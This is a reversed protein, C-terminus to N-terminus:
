AARPPHERRDRVLFREPGNGARGGADMWARFGVPDRAEMEDLYAQRLSVLTGAEVPWSADRLAATSFHWAACLEADDLAAVWTRRPEGPQESSPPPLGVSRHRLVMIALACVGALVPLAVVLAPAWVLLAVCTCTTGGAIWCRLWTPWKAGTVGNGRMTHVARDTAAIEAGSTPETTPANVRRKAREHM